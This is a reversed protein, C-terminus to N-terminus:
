REPPLVFIDNPTNIRKIHNVKIIPMAGHYDGVTFIGEVQVWENSEFNMADDYEYLFGVIRSEHNGVLMDRAVVFQNEKFDQARFIYGNSIIKKNLFSYPDEHSEKLITTFNETNMIVTDASFCKLAILCLLAILLIALLIYLINQKTINFIKM